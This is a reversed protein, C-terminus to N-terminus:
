KTTQQQFMELVILPTLFEARISVHHTASHHKTWYDAYNTKGPRWYLKFQNHYKHDHLWHFCMDMAKTRKPQVKGNIVTDAMANNTQIPTVPQKHGIEELIICIYMTERAMIYLAALEAETASSMVNKIIHAINLIAGNNCPIKEDFSLFFHGGDRSHAKPESLYSADSHVALKLESCKYTLVAGEQTALCDLLQSTQKLTDITPATPPSLASHSLCPATSLQAMFYSNEVFRNSSSKRHKDLVPTNSPAKAYQKKAGYKIPTHPFPQNQRSWGQHCFITLAKQVCDPMFINVLHTDYDWRLHINIYCEGAWDTAVQYHNCLVKYLHEAHERGVYKVGFDDVTLVFQIPRTQHRWLGPVYKSQFYGHQNLSREFLENALLGAQPFGYMDRTVAIFVMCKSTAKNHLKYQTIIEDPLDSLKIRIYEPCILPTMLYFNSIDIAMFRAGPTSVISNFLIKAVLMEATPTAVEYPYNCRDGGAVFCTRYPDANKPLVTCVFSSYTVDQRHKRPSDCEHIFHITDTGQDLKRHWTCPLLIRGCSIPEM